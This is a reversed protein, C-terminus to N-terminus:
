MVEDGKVRLLGDLKPNRGCVKCLRLEERDEM